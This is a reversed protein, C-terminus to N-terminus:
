IITNRKEGSSGVSARGLENMEAIILLFEVMVDRKIAGPAMFAVKGGIVAPSNNLAGHVLM